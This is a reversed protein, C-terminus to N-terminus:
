VERASGTLMSTSRMRARAAAPVISPTTSPRFGPGSMVMTTLSVNDPPRFAPMQVAAAGIKVSPGSMRSLTKTAAETALLGYRSSAMVTAPASKRALIPM